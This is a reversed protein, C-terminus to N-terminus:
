FKKHLYNCTCHILSKTPNLYFQVWHLVVRLFIKVIYSKITERSLNLQKVKLLQCIGKKQKIASKRFLNIM